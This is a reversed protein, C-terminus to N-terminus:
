DAVHVPRPLGESGPIRAVSSRSRVEVIGAVVVVVLGVAAILHAADLGLGPPLPALGSESISDAMVSTLRPAPMWAIGAVLLCRGFRSVASASLVWVVVTSAVLFAAGIWAEPRDVLRPLVAAASDSRGPLMLVAVALAAIPSVVTVIVVSELRSRVRPPSATPKGLARLDPWHERASPPLDEPVFAVKM